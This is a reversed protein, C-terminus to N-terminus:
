DLLTFDVPVRVTHAVPTGDRTAPQFSWREAAEAAARDLVAHGSSTVIKVTEVAGRASVALELVVRGEWGLRRARSPYRAKPVKLPRPAVLRGEPSGRIPAPQERVEPAPAPVARRVPLPTALKKVERLRFPRPLSPFTEVSEIPAPTPEVPVRLAREPAEAPATLDQPPPVPREPLLRPAMDLYAEAVGRPAEARPLSLLLAAAVVGTHVLLSGLLGLRM